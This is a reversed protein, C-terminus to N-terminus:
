HVKDKPPNPDIAPKVTDKDRIKGDIRHIVVEGGGKKSLVQKAVKEAQAQTKTIVTARDAKEKKAEWMGDNRKNVHYNQTKM